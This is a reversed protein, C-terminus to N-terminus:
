RLDKKQREDADGERITMAVSGSVSNSKWCENNLAKM